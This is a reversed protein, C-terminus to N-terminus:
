RAPDFELTEPVRTADGTDTRRTGREPAKQKRHSPPPGIRAAIAM